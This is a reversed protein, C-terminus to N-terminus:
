HSHIILRLRLKCLWTLVYNVRSVKKQFSKEPSLDKFHQLVPGLPVNLDDDHSIALANQPKSIESALYLPPM